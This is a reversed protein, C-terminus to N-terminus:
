YPIQNGDADIVAQCRDHMSDILKNLQDVPIPDWAEQVGRRLQPYTMQESFTAELYDKMWDWVKEILNLNPLDSPWFIMPMKHRKIEIQTKKEEIIQHMTKYLDFSPINNFGTM